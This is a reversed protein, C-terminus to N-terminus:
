RLDQAIIGIFHQRYSQTIEILLKLTDVYVNTELLKLFRFSVINTTLCLFSPAIQYNPLRTLQCGILTAKM